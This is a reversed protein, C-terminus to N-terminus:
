YIPEYREFLIDDLTRLHGLYKFGREQYKEVREATGIRDRINNRITHFGGTKLDRTCQATTYLTGKSYAIQCITIDFSDIVKQPTIRICESIFICQVGDADKPKVLFTNYPMLENIEVGSIRDFDTKNLFIDTDGPNWKPRQGLQALYYHLAWGGAIIGDVKFLSNPKRRM